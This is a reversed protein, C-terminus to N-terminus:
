KREGKKRYDNYWIIITKDITFDLRLVDLNRIVLLASNDAGITNIKKKKKTMKKM